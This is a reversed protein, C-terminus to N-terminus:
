TNLSENLYNITNKTKGMNKAEASRDLNLTIIQTTM